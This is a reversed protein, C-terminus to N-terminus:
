VRYTGGLRCVRQLAVGFPNWSSLLVEDIQEVGFNAGFGPVMGVSTDVNNEVSLGTTGSM